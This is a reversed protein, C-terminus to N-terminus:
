GARVLRARPFPGRLEAFINLLLDIRKRAVVSGVHLIEPRGPDRPGLLRVAGRDAIPNPEASYVPHIPLPVVDIRDPPLVGYGILATRIVQSDCAVRTAKRLGGLIRKVMGRFLRSRSEKDPEFICRFADLDHCTVVVRDPPLAHVLHAY